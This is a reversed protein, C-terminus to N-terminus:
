LINEPCTIVYCCFDSLIMSPFGRSPISPLIQNHCQSLSSSESHLHVLRRNELSFILLCTFNNDLCQMWTLYFQPVTNLAPYCHLFQFRQCFVKQNAIPWMKVQCDMLESVPAFSTGTWGHLHLQSMTAQLVAYMSRKYLANGREWSERLLQMFYSTSFCLAIYFFM